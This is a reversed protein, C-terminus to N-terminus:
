YGHCMGRVEHSSGRSRGCGGEQDSPIQLNIDSLSCDSTQKFTVVEVLATPPLALGNPIDGWSRNVCEFEVNIEPLWIAGVSV